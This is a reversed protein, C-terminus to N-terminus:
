GGRNDPILEVFIVEQLDNFYVKYCFPKRRGDKLDYSTCVYFRAYYSFNIDKFVRPIKDNAKVLVNYVGYDSSDSVYLKECCEEFSLGILEKKLVVGMATRYESNGFPGWEHIYYITSVLMSILLVIFIISKRRKNLNYSMMNMVM